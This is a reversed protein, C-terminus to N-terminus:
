DTRLDPCRSGKESPRSFVEGSFGGDAHGGDTAGFECVGLGGESCRVIQGDPARQLCGADGEDIFISSPGANPKALCRRRLFGLLLVIALLRRCAVPIPTAVGANAPAYTIKRLFCPDCGISDRRHLVIWLPRAEVRAPLRRRFKMSSFPPPSRGCHDSSRRRRPRNSAWSWGSDIMLDPPGPTRNRLGSGVLPM